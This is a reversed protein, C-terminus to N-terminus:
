RLTALAVLAFAAIWAVALDHRRLRAIGFKSGLAHLLYVGGGSAAAGFLWLLVIPSGSHFLDGADGIRDFSGVGVYIGNALLCFAAFLHLLYFQRRFFILTGWAALPFTAGILPGCWAVIGPHPNPAIDTRSFGALPFELHQVTGGTCIAGVMHGAEHTLMMGFWCTFAAPAMFLCVRPLTRM